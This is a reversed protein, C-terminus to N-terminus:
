SRMTRTRTGVTPYFDSGALLLDIAQASLAQASAALAAPPPAPRNGPHINIYNIVALADNAAIVNDPIVDYYLKAKASAGLGIIPSSGFANIYNIVSLPDIASIYGDANVDL